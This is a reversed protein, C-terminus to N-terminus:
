KMLIVGVVTNWLQRGKRHILRWTPKYRFVQTNVFGILQMYNQIEDVTLVRANADKLWKAHKIEYSGDKTAESVVLLKGGPKLVRKIEALAASFNPWFYYTEVATVFDFFNDPFSMKEVSEEFIEM